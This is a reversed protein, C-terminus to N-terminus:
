KGDLGFSGFLSNESFIVTKGGLPFLTNSMIVTLSKYLYKLKVRFSLVSVELMFLVYANIEIKM